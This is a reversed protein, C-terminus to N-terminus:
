FFVFWFFLNYRHNKKRSENRILHAVRLIIQQHTSNQHLSNHNKETEKNFTYKTTFNLTKEDTM